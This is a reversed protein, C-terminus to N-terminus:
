SATLVDPNRPKPYGWNRLDNIAPELVRTSRWFDKDDAMLKTATATLNQMDM